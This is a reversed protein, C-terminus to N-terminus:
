GVPIPERDLARMAPAGPVEFGKAILWVALVMEQVAIPLLVITYSTVANRTFLALLCAVFTLIIAVIGWVSLWRPVLRSRYFLSYYLLAGVGFSFVAILGTQDRLQLLTDGVTRFWASEAAGATTFREGLALVALLIAVGIVYMVAEIARFVVSGLAVTAGWAMLARYLSIAIGVSAGAAVLEFLAAAAIRDAHASVSTLYDPADLAPRSLAAGILSAVTATILLAGAILATRRTAQSTPRIAM